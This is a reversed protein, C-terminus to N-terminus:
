NSFESNSSNQEKHRSADREFLTTHNKTIKEIRSAPIAEFNESTKIFEPLTTEVIDEFDRYFIRYSEANNGFLAKSFIEEIKGKKM